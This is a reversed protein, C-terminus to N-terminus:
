ERRRAERLVAAIRRLQKAKYANTRRSANHRDEECALRAHYRALKEAWDALSVAESHTDQGAARM